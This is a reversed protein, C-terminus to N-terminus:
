DPPFLKSPSRIPNLPGGVRVKVRSIKGLRGERILNAVHIFEEDSRQQSGVQLIRNNRRVAKCLQQGEYITFTMPKELYVDKGARCAAMAILAHYHDPTAIVVRMSTPGPSFIRTIKM